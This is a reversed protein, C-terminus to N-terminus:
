AQKREASVILAVGALIVAAALALSSTVSEGAFMWGLTVAVVPNVYAYTSVLSPSAHKILWVYATFALISAAVVMYAFGLLSRLSVAWPDFRAFEGLALAVLILALGGAILQM